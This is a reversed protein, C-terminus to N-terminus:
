TFRCRAITASPSSPTLRHPGACAVALPELGPEAAAMLKFAPPVAGLGRAHGALGIGLVQTIDISIRM